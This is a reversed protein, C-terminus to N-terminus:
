CEIQPGILISCYDKIRLISVHNTKPNTWKFSIANVFNNITLELFIDSIEAEASYGSIQIRCTVSAAAKLM